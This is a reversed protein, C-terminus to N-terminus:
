LKSLTKYNVGKSHQRAYASQSMTIMQKDDDSETGRDTQGDMETVYTGQFM